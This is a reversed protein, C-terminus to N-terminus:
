RSREGCAGFLVILALVSVRGAITAQADVTRHARSLVFKSGKGQLCPM